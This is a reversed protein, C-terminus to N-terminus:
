NNELMDGSQLSWLHAYAGKQNILVEHAGQEIIRGQDMVVIRDMMKLTSLRHAIAIVTKDQMLCELSKQIHAESQSDLASTAEDLLLIPSDKLMARAISIRQRQGGSLKVGREGVVTHIGQPLKEVFDKASAKEVVDLVQEDSADFCGYRINEILPHNFLETDQPVVAITKRLDHFSVDKIDIGNVLVSGSNVDYFRCLLKGLTTKGAGSLGVIGVKEGAKIKLDLGSFVVNDDNYRFGVNKFHISPAQDIVLATTDAREKVENDQKLFEVLRMFGNKNELFSGVIMPFTSLITWFKDSFFLIAVFVSVSLEGAFVQVLSFSAIVVMWVLGTLCIFAWMSRTAVSCKMYSDLTKNEAVLATEGIKEKLSYIIVASISRLFEYVSGSLDEVSQHYSDQRKLVAPFFLFCVGIYSVSFGVFFLVYLFSLDMLYITLGAGILSSVFRLGDWYYTNLLNWISTRAKLLREIKNGSAVEDHWSVSLTMLHDMAYTSAQSAIRKMMKETWITVFLTMYIVFSFVGYVVVWKWSLWPDEFGIGKELPEIIQSFVYPVLMFCSLRVLMFLTHSIFEVRHPKIFFWIWSLFGGEPNAGYRPLVVENSFFTHKNKKNKNKSKFISSFGM